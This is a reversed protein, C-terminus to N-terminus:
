LVCCYELVCTGVDMEEMAAYRLSSKMMSLLPLFASQESHEEKVKRNQDDDDEVALGVVVVTSEPFNEEALAGTQM